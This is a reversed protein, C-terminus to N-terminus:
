VSGSGGYYGRETEIKDEKILGKYKELMAEAEGAKGHIVFLTFEGGAAYRATFASSFFATVWLIRPLIATRCLLREKQPFFASRRRGRGSQDLVASVEGAITNLLKKMWM